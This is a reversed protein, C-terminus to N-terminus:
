GFTYYKGDKEALVIRPGQHYGDGGILAYEEGDESEAFVYFCFLNLNDSSEKVTEYYDEVGFLSDYGSFFSKIVSEETDEEGLEVPEIRIRTVKYDGTLEGNDEDAAYLVQDKISERLSNKRLDFSGNLGYNYEKELYEAYREAYDPFVMAKYGEFDDNQFTMLYKEMALILEASFHGDDYYLKTGKPSMRYEGLGYEKSEADPTIVDGVGSEPVSVPAEGTNEKNGCSAFATLAMATMLAAVARKKM